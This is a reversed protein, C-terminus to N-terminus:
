AIGLCPQAGSVALKMERRYCDGFDFLSNALQAAGAARLPRRPQRFPQISQEFGKVIPQDMHVRFNAARRPPHGVGRDGLARVGAEGIHQDGRGRSGAIEQQEGAIPPMEIREAHRMGIREDRERVSHFDLAAFRPRSFPAGPAAVAM